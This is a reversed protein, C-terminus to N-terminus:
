HAQCYGCQGRSVMDESLPKQCRPCVLLKRYKENHRRMRKMDGVGLFPTVLSPLIMLGRVAMLNTLPLSALFAGASLLVPVFRMNVARRQLADWEQRSQAQVRRLEQFEEMFNNPDTKFLRSVTFTCGNVTQDALRVVSNMRVKVHSVRLFEGQDNRVYTGNVSNEDRLILTGDDYQEVTAHHSSVAQGKIPFNQDGLRGIRITKLIEAM